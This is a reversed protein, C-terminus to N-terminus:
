EAVVLSDDAVRYVPYPAKGDEFWDHGFCYAKVGDEVTNMVYGAGPACPSCFQCLTYYPSKVIFIDTDGGSQSCAYGDQEYTFAIPEDGYASESGFVYKCDHCVYDDCEHAAYEYNEYDSELSHGITIELESVEIVENGCKPCTPKGYDAESSDAWAQLVEGHHIVGYRIGTNKDINTLGMGYDTGRDRM